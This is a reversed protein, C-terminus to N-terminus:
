EKEFRYGVGKVTKIYDLHLKKRLNKIYVDVVRDFPYEENQWLTDLIVERTLTKGKNEILLKLIQIEKVTLPVEEENYYGQYTDFNVLINQDQWVDFTPQRNRRLVSEIRKLLIMLSFPKNMYDDALENFVSLEVGKDALATLVIIPIDSNKRIEKLAGFGDLEPMMMDLVILDATQYSSLAERGNTAEIVDYGQSSLFESIACRTIDEDEAILIKYTKDM